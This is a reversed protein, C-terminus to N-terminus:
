SKLTAAVCASPAAEGYSHSFHLSPEQCFMEWAQVSFASPQCM